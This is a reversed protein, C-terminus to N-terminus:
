RSPASPASPASGFEAAEFKKLSITPKDNRVGFAFHAKGSGLPYRGSIKIMSHFKEGPFKVYMVSREGWKVLKGTELDNMSGEPLVEVVEAECQIM